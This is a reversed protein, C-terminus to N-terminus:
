APRARSSPGSCGTWPKSAGPNSSSRVGTRESGASEASYASARRFNWGSPGTWSSPQDIPPTIAKSMAWRRVAAPRSTECTTSTSEPSGQTAGRGGSRSIWRRNMFSMTPMASRVASAAAPSVATNAPRGSSTSEPSTKAATSSDPMRGSSSSASRSPSRYATNRACISASKAKSTASGYWPRTVCMREASDGGSYMRHSRTAVSRSSCVRGPVWWEIQVPSLRM